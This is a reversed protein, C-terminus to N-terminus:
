CKHWDLGKHAGEPGASMDPSASMNIGSRTSGEQNTYRRYVKLRANYVHMVKFTDDVELTIVSQDNCTRDLTM